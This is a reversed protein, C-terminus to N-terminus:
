KVIIQLDVNARIIVFCVNHFDLTSVNQISISQLFFLRILMSPYNELFFVFFFVCYYYREKVDHFSMVFPSFTLLLPENYACSTASIKMAALM